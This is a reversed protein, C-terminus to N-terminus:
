GDVRDRVILLLGAGTPAVAQTVRGDEAVLERFAAVEGAHSLVNDVALLGGPALM